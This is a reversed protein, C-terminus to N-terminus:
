YQGRRYQEDMADGIMERHMDDIERRTYDPETRAREVTRLIDGMPDSSPDSWPRNSDWWERDVASPETPFFEEVADEIGANYADQCRYDSFEAMM